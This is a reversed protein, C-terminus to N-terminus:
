SDLALEDLSRIAEARDSGGDRDIYIAKWGAARAAQYDAEWDDGILILEPPALGTEREIARFFEAAPKRWGVKASIFVHRCAALPPKARVIPVLRTDFNSAIGLTCGRAALRMMCGAVDDFLQWSAPSAFHRWLTQFLQEIAAPETVEPFVAAVIQRWRREEIQESTACEALSGTSYQRAFTGRFREAVTQRDCIVGYEAAAAAYVEDVPPHAFLLTGVADFLVCHSTPLIV